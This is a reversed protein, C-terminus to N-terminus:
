APRTAASRRTSSRRRSSRRRSPARRRSRRPRGASRRSTSRRSASSSRRSRGSRCPKGDFRPAKVWSYKGNDDWKTYKPVTEDEYPHKTATARRVLRARDVGHRQRPLVPRRLGQDGERERPRRRHDHRGPPRVEHGEHRAPPGARRPLEERGRRVALWDAYLAGVACVDPFYVQQIFATIEDFLDKVMFLKNMNLTAENDLNIANAVGGVALNQINPTKSGLIAVVKNIGQRQYDLAQLYHAVALLNVEPPLKM